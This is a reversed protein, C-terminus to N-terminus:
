QSRTLNIHNWNLASDYNGPQSDEELHTDEERGVLAVAVPLRGEGKKRWLLIIISPEKYPFTNLESSTWSAAVLSTKSHYTMHDEDRMRETNLIINQPQAYLITTLKTLSKLTTHILCKAMERMRESLGVVRSSLPLRIAQHINVIIIILKKLSAVRASALTIGRIQSWPCSSSM